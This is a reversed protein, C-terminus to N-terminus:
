WVLWWILLNNIDSTKKPLYNQILEVPLIYGRAAYANVHM